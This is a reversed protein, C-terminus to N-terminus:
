DCKDIRDSLKNMLFRTAFFWHCRCTKCADGSARAGL